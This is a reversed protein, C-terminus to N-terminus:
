RAGEIRRAGDPCGDGGVGLQADISSQRLPVEPLPLALGIVAEPCLISRPKRLPLCIAQANRGRAGIATKDLDIVVAAREDIMLGQKACYRDFDELAPWRNALYIGQGNETTTMEVTAARDNESGIFALGPLEGAQCLNAFATGDLLRTDGVFIMREIRKKGGEQRWAHELIQLIVRAYGLEHKRPITGQALGLKKGLDALGPLSPDYPQLNRYVIRDGLFESVSARGYVRM